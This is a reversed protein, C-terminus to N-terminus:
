NEQAIMDKLINLTEELYIDKSVGKIWDENRAVRSEDSNIYTTDVALNNIQLAEISADFLDKFKESEEERLDNMAVYADFDLPYSTFDKNKKLRAANELILNFDEVQGIRAKSKTALSARDKIQYVNQKYPVPEIETWELAHDYDKEGTEIYHYNNPLIIDPTVGRLQTSGGNIRFFKQMTIKLNGLPKLDFDPSNYARDM